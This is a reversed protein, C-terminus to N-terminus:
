RCSSFFSVLCVDGKGVVDTELTFQIFLENNFLAFIM